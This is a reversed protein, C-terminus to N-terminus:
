SGGKTRKRKKWNRRKKRGSKDPRTTTGRDFLNQCVEYEKQDSVCGTNISPSTTADISTPKNIDNSIADKTDNSPIRDTDISAAEAPGKDVENRFRLGTQSAEVHQHDDLVEIYSSLHAGKDPPIPFEVEFVECPVVIKVPDHIKKVRKHFGDAEEACIPPRQELKVIYRPLEDLWPQRDIIYPPRQYIIYPPQRDISAKPSTELDGRSTHQDDDLKKKSMQDMDELWEELELFGEMIVERSSDLDELKEGDELKLFEELELFDEMTIEREGDSTPDCSSIDISKLTSDAIDQPCISREPIQLPILRHCFDTYIM